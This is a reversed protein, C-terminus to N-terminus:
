LRKLLDKVKSMSEVFLRIIEDWHSVLREPPLDRLDAPLEPGIREMFVKMLRVEKDQDLADVTKKFVANIHKGNRDLKLRDTMADFVLRMGGNIGNVGEYLAAKYGGKQSFANEVLDFADSSVADKKMQGAPSGTHRFIHTYFATISENFEFSDKVIVSETLYCLRASDLPLGFKEALTEECIESLIRELIEEEDAPPISSPSAEVSRSPNRLGEGFAANHLRRVDEYDAASKAHQSLKVCLDAPILPFLDDLRQALPPLSLVLRFLTEGANEPYRGNQIFYGAYERLLLKAKEFYRNLLFQELTEWFREKNGSSLLFITRSVPNGPSGAPGAGKGDFFGARLSGIVISEDTMFIKVADYVDSIQHIKKDGKHALLSEKSAQYEIPTLVKLSMDKDLDPIVAGTIGPFSLAADLKAPIGKVPAIDGDLSAIHGTSAIDQRLGANLSSSLLALFVPLDASFGGIEFGGVSSATAGINVVSAEYNIMPLDLGKIIRDVLPLVVTEIHNKIHKKFRVSGKFILHGEEDTSNLRAVIESVIGIPRTGSDDYILITKARGIVPPNNNRSTKKM